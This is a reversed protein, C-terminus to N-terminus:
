VSCEREGLFLVDGLGNGFIQTEIHRSREIYRELFFGANNSLAAGRSQVASVAEQLQEPTFCRQLGMGGGGATAKVMLPFGISQAVAEAEEYTSLITSGPVVPVGAEIALRRAEHKLGFEEISQPTPGVFLIGETSLQRALNADESLFGYGPMVAHINHLQCLRLLCSIDLYGRSGPLDLEYAEDAMRVHLSTADESAYVAVATIDLKQCSKILRIAIEGRNAILVRTLRM